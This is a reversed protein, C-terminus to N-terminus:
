RNLSRWMQASHWSKYLALAEFLVMGLSLILQGIRAQESQASTVLTAYAVGIAIIVFQKAVQLRDAILRDNAVLLPACGRCAHVCAWGYRRTYAACDGVARRTDGIAVLLTLVGLLVWLAEPATTYGYINSNLTVLLESMTM